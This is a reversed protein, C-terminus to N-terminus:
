IKFDKEIDDDLNRNDFYKEEKLRSIKAVINGPFKSYIKMYNSITDNYYRIEGSLRINLDEIKEMENEYDVINSMKKANEKLKIMKNEYDILSRYFEFSTLKEDPLKEMKTLTDLNSADKGKLGKNLLVKVINLSDYKVRLTEDIESEVEKKKLLKDKLNNYTVAYFFGLFSILLIVIIIFYFLEM